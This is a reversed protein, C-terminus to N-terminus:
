IGQCYVHGCTFAVMWSGRDVIACVDEFCIPCEVRSSASSRRRRTSASTAEVIELRAKRTEEKSKKSSSKPRHHWPAVQMRLTVNSRREPTDQTLDILEVPATGVAGDMADAM